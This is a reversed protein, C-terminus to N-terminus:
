NNSLSAERLYAAFPGSDWGAREKEPMDSLNALFKIPSKEPVHSLKLLSYRL